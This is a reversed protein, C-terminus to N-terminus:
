EANVPLAATVEDTQMPRYPHYIRNGPLKPVFGLFSM